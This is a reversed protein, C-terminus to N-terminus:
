LIDSMDDDNNCVQKYGKSQIWAPLTCCAGSALGAPETVATAGAFLSGCCSIITPRCIWM